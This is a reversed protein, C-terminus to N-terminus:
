KDVEPSSEHRKCAPGLVKVGDKFGTNSKTDKTHVSKCQCHMDLTFCKQCVKQLLANIAKKTKEHQETNQRNIEKQFESFNEDSNKDVKSTTPDLFESPFGLILGGDEEMSNEIAEPNKDSSKISASPKEPSIEDM